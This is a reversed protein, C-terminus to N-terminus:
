AESVFPNEQGFRDIAKQRLARRKETIERLELTTEETRFEDLLSSIMLEMLRGAHELAFWAHNIAREDTYPGFILSVGDGDVRMDQMKPLSHKMWCLQRYVQYETEALASDGLRECNAKVCKRWNSGLIGWPVEEEISDAELWEKAKKPSHSFFLATHALEFLSAALTGTQEPYGKITLLQVCRLYDTGRMLIMFQARAVEPIGYLAQGGIAQQVKFALNYTDNAYNLHEKLEPFLQDSAKNEEDLLSKEGTM